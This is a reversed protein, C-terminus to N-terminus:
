FQDCSGCMDVDCTQSKNATTQGTSAWDERFDEEPDGCLSLVDSLLEKLFPNDLVNSYKFVKFGSVLLDLALQRVTRLETLCQIIIALAIKPRQFRQALLFELCEILQWQIASPIPSQVNIGDRDTSFVMIAKIVAREETTLNLEQVRNCTAVYSWFFDHNAFQGFEKQCYQTGGAWVGVKLETDFLSMSNLINVEPRASKILDAQTTLDLLTFGPLKKSFKILAFALLECSTEWNKLMQKRNDIDLGTTRWIEDYDEEPLFYMRGFMKIKHECNEAHIKQQERLEACRREAQFLVLFYQKHAEKILQIAERKDAFISRVLQEISSTPSDDVKHPSHPEEPEPAETSQPNHSNHTKDWPSVPSLSYFSTGAHLSTDDQPKPLSSITCNVDKQANLTNEQRVRLDVLECTNANEPTAVPSWLDLFDSKGSTSAVSHLPTEPSKILLDSSYPSTFASDCQSPSSKPPSLVKHYMSYDHVDNSKSSSHTDVWSALYNDSDCTSKAIFAKTDSQETSSMKISDVSNSDSISSGEFNTGGMSNRMSLLRKVEMIDNTKKHSTYRGTKIAGKSMGVQVCRQYRCYQCSRQRKIKTLDCSGSGSCKYLHHVKLSRHFFGKCAECTNVGYHFGAGDDGCVRCPPLVHQKLDIDDASLVPHNMM